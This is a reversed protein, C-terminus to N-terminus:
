LQRFPLAFIHSAIIVVILIPTYLGGVSSVVGLVPRVEREYLNYKSDLGVLYLKRLTRQEGNEFKFYGSNIFTKKDSGVNLFEVTRPESWPWPNDRLTINNFRYLVEVVPIM